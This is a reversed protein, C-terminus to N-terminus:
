PSCRFPSAPDRAADMFASFPISLRKAGNPRKGLYQQYVSYPYLSAHLGTEGVANASGEVSGIVTGSRVAGGKQMDAYNLDMLTLVYQQGNIRTNLLIDMVGLSYDATGAKGQRNTWLISGAMASLASVDSSAGPPAYVHIGNHAARGTAVPKGSAASIEPILNRTAGLKGGAVAKEICNPSQPNQPEGGPGGGGGLGLEEVGLMPPHMGTGGGGGVGLSGVAGYVSVGPVVTVCQGNQCFIPFTGDLGSPDVFNVPDNSVYAYRNFSQPDSASMSGGYPDPSTWRGWGSDYKRYPTHELGTAVDKEMGAYQTRITNSWTWLGTPQAGEALMASNASMGPEAVDRRVDGFPLNDRRGVIRAAGRDGHNVAARTMFSITWNALPTM